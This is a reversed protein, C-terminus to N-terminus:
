LRASTARNGAPYNPRDGFSIMIPKSTTTIVRAACRGDSALSNSVTIATTGVTLQSSTAIRSQLGGPASADAGKLDLLPILLYVAVLVFALGAVIGVKKLTTKM